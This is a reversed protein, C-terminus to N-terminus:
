VRLGLERARVGAQFRSSAGLLDMLEAVRRRYTRVSLGLQRAATEDKQGSSLSRLITLGQEDIHPPSGALHDAVDTAAQWAGLVLSRVNHVVDPVTIVSFDRTSGVGTGALIAIRGDVIMTEHPLTAATIRVLAGAGAVARLHEAAVPDALAIPNYLKYIRIGATTSERVQCLADENAAMMSWTASDTAACIFEAAPRLLHGARAKLEATGHLTLV